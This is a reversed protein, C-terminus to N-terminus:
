TLKIRLIALLVGSPYLFIEEERVSALLPCYAFSLSLPKRKYFYLVKM